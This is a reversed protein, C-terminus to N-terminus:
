KISELFKQRHAILQSYTTGGPARPTGKWPMSPIGPRISSADVIKGRSAPSDWGEVYIEKRRISHDVFWYRQFWKGLSTQWAPDVVAFALIECGDGHDGAYIANPVEPCFIGERLWIRNPFTTSHGPGKIPCISTESRLMVDHAFRSHGILRDYWTAAVEGMYLSLSKSSQQWKHKAHAHANWYAQRQEFTLKPLKRLPGFNTGIVFSNPYRRKLYLPSIGDGWFLSLDVWYITNSPAPHNEHAAVIWASPIPPEFGSQVTQRVFALNRLPFWQHLKM